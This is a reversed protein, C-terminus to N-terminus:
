MARSPSVRSRNLIDVCKISARNAACFPSSTPILGTGASDDALNGQLQAVSPYLSTLTQGQILRFGEYNFMFFTRNRGNYVKPFWVPGSFTGGFNNQNLAPQSIAAQKAFYTSAAYARNRNLEFLVLHFPNAGSLIETNIISAAHGFEAGFTTRQVRFEQIADVSPRIGTNGFRSNRTEIGNVLFSTDSERLGALSVTTDSRGTWTTAPSNGAGIPAAGTTLQTLQMFNRGNLPLTQISNQNIVQGVAASESNLLAAESASVTVSESSAGIQMHVDLNVRQGIVVTINDLQTARFGEHAVVLKYNGPKLSSFVALGNGDTALHMQQGTDVRTLTLDANPITGGTPDTVASIIDGTISQALCTQTAFLALLGALLAPRQLGELGSFLRRRAPEKKASCPQLQFM